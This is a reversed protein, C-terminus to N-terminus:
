EQDYEAEGRSESESGSDSWQPRSVGRSYCDWNGRDFGLFNDINLRSDLMTEQDFFMMM